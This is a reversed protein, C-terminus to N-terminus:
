RLEGEELDQLYKPAKAIPMVSLPTSPPDYRIYHNKLEDTDYSLAAELKPLATLRVSSAPYLAALLEAPRPSNKLGLVVDDWWEGECSSAVKATGRGNSARYVSDGYRLASGQLAGALEQDVLKRLETAVQAIQSLRSRAEALQIPTADTLSEPLSAPEPYVKLADLVWAVVNM